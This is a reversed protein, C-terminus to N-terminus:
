QTLLLTLETDATLERHLEVVKDPLADYDFASSIGQASRPVRIVIRCPLASTAAAESPLEAVFRGNSESVVTVSQGQRKGNEALPEFLLEGAAPRGDLTVVGSVTLADSNECGTAILMATM